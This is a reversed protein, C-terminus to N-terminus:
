APRARPKTTQPGLLFKCSPRKSKTLTRDLTALPLGLAEAVAIYWADYSSLEHRLEWIRESFPRFPLLEIDLQMHDDHASNAELTSIRKARELRRITNTTEVLILEPGFLPAGSLVEEAWTGAPGSDVTAAVLVSADIVTSL